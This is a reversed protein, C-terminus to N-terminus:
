HDAAADDDDDVSHLASLTYCTEVGEATTTGVTTTTTTTTASPATTTTGTTECATKFYTKCKGQSHSDFRPVSQDATSCM